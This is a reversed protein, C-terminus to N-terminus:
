RERRDGAADALMVDAAKEGIMLVASAIFFGPIRPFVSADVVRLGHTGHVRFDSGLVGNLERPGIACSCSAHHGWANSRVFERLKEDTDVHEGPVEETAVLGDEKLSAAIRRAFTVGDVVANLDHEMEGDGEQFYRFNISPPELPDASRLRVEGARNTTHAKLISWTLCNLHQPILSSYNPFYGRFYGVLGLIFLDPPSQHASLGQNGSSRRIVSLLAGNTTYMGKRRQAWQDYQPDGKAFKAGELVSWHDFNMRNVVGVEYRDQLNRGVGPLHVRVPIGHRQLEEGPGIGSLMLLQPTNFAGGSLVVERAAYVEHREGSTQSPRSHARYLREGRLYEVGIARNHPDLIVRTALANLEVQLHEPHRGAADLLRERTGMRAHHSTALPAYCVGVRKGDSLRWDNPDALSELLTALRQLPESRDELAALVAKFLVKRLARDGLAALPLANETRLWGNWGHRTPNVGLKSLWRYPARHQCNELREFYTRMHIPNWSADRTLEEIQKWDDNHPYIFIMANHATCGGLTAARPYLVGDVHKGGWQEYYKPDQRQVENSGYHRVFFDWKLADNESAFPHFVPVDYDDPLRDTGPRGPDRGDLAKADGGAELVLVTRGAEALRAALTGGGAGSGVIVYEYEPSRGATM